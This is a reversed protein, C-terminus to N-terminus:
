ATHVSIADMLRYCRFHRRSPLKPRNKRPPYRRSALAHLPQHAAIGMKRSIPRETQYVSCGHRLRSALNVAGQLRLDRQFRNPFLRRHGVKGLAVLDM